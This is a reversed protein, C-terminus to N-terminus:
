KFVEHVTSERAGGRRECGSVVHLEGGVFAAAGSHRGVKLPPLTRWKGTNVNYAEVENHALNSTMSEGGIVIIESGHAVTMAGARATPIRAARTWKGTNFDYVNTASVTKQFTQPHDSKRGGAAVLKNDAVAISVHDRADPANALTTWKGTAPDFEDFWNVAGGSHGHTNGGVLYIKGNHVAAGAGGRMRNAPMGPKKSWQRTNTDFIWVNNINNEVPYCCTFAGIMYIKSGIAVPQFHHMEMPAKAITQWAGTAPDYMDVPRSGRGGLVYLKGNVEVGGAEHRATVKGNAPQQTWSGQIPQRQQQQAQPAAVNATFEMNNYLDGDGVTLQIRYSGATAFTIETSAANVVSFVVEGPGSIKSWYYYIGNHPLGDDSAIGNVPFATGATAEVTNIPTIVPATNAGQQNQSNDTPTDPIEVPAALGDLIEINHLANTYLEGDNASVQVTYTGATSFTVDPNIQQQNSFRVEGPGSIKNWYYYITGHPRGDDSARANLTVPNNTAAQTPGDISVSPSRNSGDDAVTDTNTDSGPNTHHSPQDEIVRDINIQDLMLGTSASAIQFLHVGPTTVEITMAQGNVDRNQWLWQDDFGNLKYNVPGNDSGFTILAHQDPQAYYTSDLRGHVKMQYTGTHSFNIDYTLTAMGSDSWQASDQAVLKAAQGHDNDLEVPLWNLTASSQNETWHEAQLIVRNATDPTTGSDDSSCSLLVSTLSVAIAINLKKM